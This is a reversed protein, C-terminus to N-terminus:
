FEVGINAEYEKNIREYVERVVLDFEGVRISNVIFNPYTTMKYAILSCDGCDILYIRWLDFVDVPVRVDFRAPMDLDIDITSEGWLVQDIKEFINNIPERCFSSGARNGRDRVIPAMQFLFDRLSTGLDFNGVANGFIWYCVKGFLWEGGFNIDYEYEIAFSEKNGVIM